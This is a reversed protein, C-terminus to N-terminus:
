VAGQGQDSRAPHRSRFYFSLGVQLSITNSSGGTFIYHSFAVEAGLAAGHRRAGLLALYGAGVSLSVPNVDGGVYSGARATAYPSSCKAPKLYYTGSAAVEGVWDVFRYRVFGGNEVQTRGSARRWHYAVGVGASVRESILRELDLGLTAHMSSSDPFKRSGPVTSNEYTTSTGGFSLTLGVLNLGKAIEQAGAPHALAVVAAGLAAAFVWRGRAMDDEERRASEEPDPQGCSVGKRREDFGV